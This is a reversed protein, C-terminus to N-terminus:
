ADLIHLIKIPVSSDLQKERAHSCLLVSEVIGAHNNYTICNILEQSLSMFQVLNSLSPPPKLFKNELQFLDILSKSALFLVLLINPFLWNAILYILLTSRLSLFLIFNAKPHTWAGPM